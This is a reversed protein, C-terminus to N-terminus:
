VTFTLSGKSAKSTTLAAVFTCVQECAFSLFFNILFHFPFLHHPVVAASINCTFFQEMVEWMKSEGSVKISDKEVLALLSPEELYEGNGHKQESFCFYTKM